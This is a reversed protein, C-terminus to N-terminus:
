TKAQIINSMTQPPQYGRRSLIKEKLSHMIVQTVTTSIYLIVLPGPTSLVSPRPQPPPSSRPGTSFGPFEQAFQSLSIM